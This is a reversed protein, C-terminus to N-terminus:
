RRKIKRLFSSFEPKIDRWNIFDKKSVKLLSTISEIKLYISQNTKIIAPLDRWVNSWSIVHASVLPDTPIVNMITSPLQPFNYFLFNSWGWLRPNLDIPYLGSENKIFELEIFGHLRTNAAIKSMAETIIAIDQKDTALVTHSTIGQPYQRVQEAIVSAVEKGSIWVGGYSVSQNNDFLRQIVFNGWFQKPIINRISYLQAQQEIIKTKFPPNYEDSAKACKVIYQKSDSFDLPDNLRKFEAINVDLSDLWTYLASKDYFIDLTESSPAFVDFNYERFEEIYQVFFESCPIVLWESAQESNENIWEQILHLCEEPSDYSFNKGYRSYVIVDNSQSIIHIKDTYKQARRLLQLAPLVGGLLLLSKSM